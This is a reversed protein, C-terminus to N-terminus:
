GGELDIREREYEAYWPEQEPLAAAVYSRLRSEPPRRQKVVLPFGKRPRNVIPLAAQRGDRPGGLATREGEYDKRRAAERELEADRQKRFKKRVEEARAKAKKAAEQKKRLEMMRKNARQQKQYREVVWASMFTATVAAVDGTLLSILKASQRFKKEFNGM